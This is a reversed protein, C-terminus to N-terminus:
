ALVQQEPVGPKFFRFKVQLMGNEIKHELRDMSRPTPGGIRSGDRNWASGHCPCIFGKEAANITCGLHPCIASFVELNDGIRFVWVLQQSNFRGWGGDQSIVVARKLPEGEPIDALPAVDSWGEKERAKLAPFLSYGTFIFGLVAAMATGMAAMILALFSRRSQPVSHELPVDVIERATVSPPQVVDRSTPAPLAEPMKKTNLASLTRSAEIETGPSRLEPSFIKLKVIDRSFILDLTWDLAVRVKRDFQPLKFLYITRWLWWALFGSFKIGYLNAVGSRQGLSALQGKMDYVFARKKERMISSAINEAALRGQRIAHQATPPFTKGSRLDPIAACDGIAWVNDFGPVELFENTLLRGRQDHTCPLTALLPSPSVGATWVLSRTHVSRGGTLMVQSETADTVRVDLWVEIGRDRLKMLAFEALDDSLEPLIRKGPDVLLVQIQKPDVHRYNGAAERVFDNLEAVLEVGAFGAGAVVFTLLRRQEERPEIEALELMDIVHNRIVIADGITKLTMAYREVNAMGYFNTVGGLAVLLHTYEMSYRHKVERTAHVAVIRRTELDISEIDVEQFKCKRYLKRIPITIHRTAISGSSVEHLMPTFVFFNDRSLLTVEMGRPDSVLKELQLGAYIGGFGGGAIVIHVDKAM